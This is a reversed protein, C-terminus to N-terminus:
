FVACRGKGLVGGMESWTQTYLARDAKNKRAYELIRLGGNINTEVYAFPDYEKLYAPLLGALNIVAYVNDTPLRDFDEQKCVDVQVYKIGHKEFFDTKKRGVAVIEYKNKDIHQNCYDTLYAGINGTAGFIVIKKM